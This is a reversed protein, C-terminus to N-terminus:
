TAGGKAQPERDLQEIASGALHVIRGWAPLSLGRHCLLSWLIGRSRMVGAGIAKEARTVQLGFHDSAGAMRWVEVEAGAGAITEDLEVLLRVNM